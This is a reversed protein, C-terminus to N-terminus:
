RFYALFFPTMFIRALIYLIPNVGHARTYQHYAQLRDDPAM